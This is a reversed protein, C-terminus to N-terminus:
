FRVLNKMEFHNSLLEFNSVCKTDDVEISVYKIKADGLFEILIGM